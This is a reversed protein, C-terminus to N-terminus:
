TAYGDGDIFAIPVMARIEEPTLPQDQAVTLQVLMLLAMVSVVCFRVLFM